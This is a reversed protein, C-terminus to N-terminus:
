PAPSSQRPVGSRSAAIRAVIRDMYLYIIPTTFLTLVQSLLLGGVMVIGLPRRLESGAGSGFALPLAGLLAVMTTMMIPRFRRLSAEYIAEEPPLNQAELVLAQDVMMIGNKKVIGILLIVGILAILSFDYQLLMLALLGGIGASPLTSLITLPHIFSEYLIGLVVFIAFLAAAILFPQGALSEQFASASGSFVSSLGAPAGFSREKAKIADVADGLSAGKALNFSLTVAPFQGDHNVTLPAASFELRSVAALPVPSATLSPVYLRALANEDLQFQPAVELITRYVNVQTYFSAVQRQGYADYLTDDVSQTTVGLRAMADRDLKITVRPASPDIDAEVDTIQPISRLTKLLVPAWHQLEALNPDRLTYQFQTKSVRAGVQLDQRAQMHLAIDPMGRVRSNIRDMVEYVSSHREGFPKLDILLRGINLSPDGEIWFYVDQIDDDRSVRDALERMRQAMTSFSVDPPAETVGAILGNDQQPFFGKPIWIYLSVTIAVTLCLVGLVIPQHAIAWRLGTGYRHVVRDFWRKASVHFRPESPTDTRRLFHACMMPTLTLSVLGSILIAVTATGAFERFLRGVIGGMFLVPIFVAVLSITMSVITFGIEQSGRLAATLSDEGSEVHRLVNELMVIADDVIFGVSVTLAMLSVNDLSYGLLYMAAMAGALSLPITVAPIVTARIDGLFLFVVFVVLVCTILLTFQVDKVSSRIAQTRDALLTLHISAPLDSRLRPLLAKVREVTANVNFGVQKHVDIIICRHRGLWASQKVDEVSDIVNAIDRLRTVVGNHTQIILDAYEAAHELQDNTDLTLSRRDSSLTGKPGNVTSAAILQRLDELSLGLGTLRGPDAQVRIAPKQQGHYDVLGVGIVRAIQPTLYNEAYNDVAAIPLTDSYVAISMLLADAPNAKEFTPPHPLEKPLDGLATNIATQVDVAAADVSRSLEFQVDISSAGLSSTSTISLVGPLNALARELPATVGTAITEASAGPLTTSVSITPVDIQPVGAIPLQTYSAIGVFFLALMLLLTAVPRRIFWASFHLQIVRSRAQPVKLARQGRRISRSSICRRM